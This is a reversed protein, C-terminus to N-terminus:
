RRALPVIMKETQAQGTGDPLCGVGAPLVKTQEMYPVSEFSLVRNDAMNGGFHVCVEM